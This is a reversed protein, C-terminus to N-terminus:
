HPCAVAPHVPWCVPNLRFRPVYLLVLAFFPGGCPAQRIIRTVMVKSAQSGMAKGWTNGAAYVVRTEYTNDNVGLVTRQQDCGDLKNGGKRSEAADAVRAGLELQQEQRRLLHGLTVRQQAHQILHVRTAAQAADDDVLRVADALPPVVEPLDLLCQSYSAHVACM